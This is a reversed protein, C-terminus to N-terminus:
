GILLISALLALIAYTEVLVTMTIGRGSAAPQKATMHIASVAMKAQFVASMLGVLAIPICAFFLQWGEAVPADVALAGAKGLVLIAVIFGYMGQTGPLAQLIILKGFLEPKESLVGAAAKGAMQVGMASGLGALAAAMAAGIIALAQATINM